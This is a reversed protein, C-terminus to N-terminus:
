QARRRVDKLLPDDPSNGRIALYQRYSDRFGATGLRERAQGRHYLASPFYGYTQEEDLLVSLAEGRRKICLGFEADADVARGLELYARGLAEHGLWTDLLANAETLQKVAAGADRRKLAIEGLVIKGYAKPEPATESALKQAIDDASAAGAQALIRGALFRAEVSDTLTLARQAAAIALPNHGLAL